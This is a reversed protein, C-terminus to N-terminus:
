SNPKGFIQLQFDIWWLGLCFYSGDFYYERFGVYRVSRTLFNIDLTVGVEPFRAAFKALHKSPRSM